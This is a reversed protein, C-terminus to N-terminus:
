RRRTKWAAAENAQLEHEARRGEIDHRDTKGSQFEARLELYAAM